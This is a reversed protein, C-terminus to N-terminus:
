DFNKQNMNNLEESSLFRFIMRYTQKQKCRCVKSIGSEPINYFRAAEAISNFRRIIEGDKSIRAIPKSNQVGIFTQINEVDEKCDTKEINGM